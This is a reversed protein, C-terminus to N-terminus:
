RAARANRLKSKFSKSAVASTRNMKPASSLTFDYHEPEARNTSYVEAGRPTVHVDFNFKEGDRTRLSVKSVGPDKARVEAGGRMAQVAVVSPNSVTVKTFRGNYMIFKTQGLWLSMPGAWATTSVVAVAVVLLKGLNRKM